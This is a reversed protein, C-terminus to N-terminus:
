IFTNLFLLKNYHCIDFISPTEPINDIQFWNCMSNINTSAFSEPMGSCLIYYLYQFFNISSSSLFRFIKSIYKTVYLLLYKWTAGFKWIKWWSTNIRLSGGFIFLIKSIIKLLMDVQTINTNTERHKTDVSWHFNLFTM